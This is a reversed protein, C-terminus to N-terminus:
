PNREEGSQLDAFVPCPVDAHIGRLFRASDCMSEGFLAIARMIYALHVKLGIGGAGISGSLCHGTPSPGFRIKRARIVAKLGDLQRNTVARVAQASIIPRPHSRLDAFLSELAISLGCRKRGDAKTALGVIPVQGNTQMAADPCGISGDVEQTLVVARLREEKAQAKLVRM